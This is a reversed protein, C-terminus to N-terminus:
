YNALYIAKEVIANAIDDIMCPMDSNESKSLSEDRQSM